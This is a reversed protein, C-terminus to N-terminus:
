KNLVLLYDRGAIWQKDVIKLSDPKTDWKKWYKEAIGLVIKKDSSVMKTVEELDKTEYVDSGSYYTYIGSYVKYAVPKYGESIYTKMLGAQKEPSMSIDLSPILTLGLVNFFLTISLVFTILSKHLEKEAMVWIVGAVAIAAFGSIYNGSIGAPVEPLFKIIFLVIGLIIMFVSSSRWFTKTKETKILMYAIYVAFPSFMPLAYISIKGSLMSLFILTSVIAVMVYKEGQGRKFFQVTNRFLEKFGGTFMVFVWPMWMLTFAYSYYYFPEAHHWTSVARKYVQKYILSSLFDYGEVMIIGLLWGLIPLMAVLMGIYLHKNKFKRFETNIIVAFFFFMVPLICALPGKTLAAISAVIFTIYSYKAEGTQMFKYM